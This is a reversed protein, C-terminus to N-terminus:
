SRGLTKQWAEAERRSRAGFRLKRPAAAYLDHTYAVPDFRRDELGKTTGTLPGIYTSPTSTAPNQAGLRVSCAAAMGSAMRALERRSLKAM